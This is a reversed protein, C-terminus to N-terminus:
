TVVKAFRTFVVRAVSVWGIALLFRCLGAVFASVDWVVMPLFAQKIRFSEFQLGLLQKCAYDFAYQM